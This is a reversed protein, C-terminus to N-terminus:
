PLPEGVQSFEHLAGSRKPNHLHCFGPRLQETTHIVYTRKIEACDLRSGVVLLDLNTVRVEYVMTPEVREWPPVADRQWRSRSAAEEPQAAALLDAIPGGADAEM